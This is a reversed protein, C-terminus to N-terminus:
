APPARIGHRYNRRYAEPQCLTLRDYQRSIRINHVHKHVEQASYSLSPKQLSYFRLASEFFVDTKDDLRM